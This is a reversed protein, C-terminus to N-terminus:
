SRLRPDFRFPSQDVVELNRANPHRPNILVNSSAVVVASPVLLALSRTQQLWQDGIARTYGIDESWASKLRAADLPEIADDPVGVLFALYDSPFAGTIHVLAEVVALAISESTYVLPRGPSNWRGGFLRAGEGTLADHRGSALRWVEV